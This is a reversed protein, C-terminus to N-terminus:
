AVLVGRLDQRYAASAPKLADLDGPVPIDGDVGDVALVLYSGTILRHAVVLIALDVGGLEFPRQFAGGFAGPDGPDALQNHIGARLGRAVYLYDGGGLGVLDGAAGNHVQDIFVAPQGSQAHLFGTHGAQLLVLGKGKRGFEVVLVSFFHFVGAAHKPVGVAALGFVADADIRILQAHIGGLPVVHLLHSDAQRGIGIHAGGHIGAGDDQGHAAALPNGARQLNGPLAGAAVDDNGVQSFVGKGNVLGAHEVLVM